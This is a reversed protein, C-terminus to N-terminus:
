SRGIAGAIDTEELQELEEILEEDTVYEDDFWWPQNEDDGAEDLADMTDEIWAEDDVAADEVLRIPSQAPSGHHAERLPQHVEAVAVVLVGVAVSGLVMAVRPIALWRWPAWSPAPAPHRVRRMVQEAYGRAMEEPPTHVPHRSLWNRLWPLWQGSTM